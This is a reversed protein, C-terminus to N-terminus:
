SELQLSYGLGRHTQIVESDAKVARLKARLTKIHTDVTRDDTDLADTWIADMLVARSFIRGPQSRLVGLLLLEYRTLKLAVGHFTATGHEVNVELVSINKKEFPSSGARKLMRKIRAVIERPSFPKTVYDDGGLELGLVKDIEGHRATLFLIPVESQRRIERCLDFGNIDPLGVDLIMVDTHGAALEKLADQGLRKWVTTLGESELAYILTQAIANEDEVLLVKPM